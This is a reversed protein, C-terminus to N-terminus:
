LRSFLEVIRVAMTHVYAFTKFRLLATELCFAWCRFSSWKLQVHKCYLINFGVGNIRTLLARELDYSNLLKLPPNSYGNRDMDTQLLLDKLKGGEVYM